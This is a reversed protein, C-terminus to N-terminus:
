DRRAEYYRCGQCPGEPNVACRLYASRANFRCTIDGILQGVGEIYQMEPSLHSTQGVIIAGQEMALRLRERARPAAQRMVLVSILPPILGIAFVLLTEM